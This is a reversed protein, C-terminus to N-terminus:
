AGVPFTNTILTQQSVQLRSIFIRNDTTLKWTLGAASESLVKVCSWVISVTLASKQAVRVGGKTGKGPFISRSTTGRPPITM